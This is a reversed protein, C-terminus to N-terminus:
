AARGIEYNKAAILARTQDEFSWASSVLPVPYAESVVPEPVIMQPLDFASTDIRMANNLREIEEEMQSLKLRAKEVLTGLKEGDMQANIVAQASEQWERRAREVRVHLSSDFYHGIAKEAEERLADGALTMWADIETQAVGMAAQWKDARRETAKLPTSPLGYARAQDATLGARHVVFELEPFFQTKFAQLKRAISIPMQHGSPDLDSFTFVVMPRGDAAGEKAMTHLQSNSLEGASLYLDAGYKEAIPALVQKMSTKEAWLVLRFAQRGTFDFSFIEPELDEARPLDVELGFSIFSGPGNDPHRRIIPPDNRQDDLDDFPIYGLWRASNAAKLLWEWAPDDNIYRVGNPRILGELSTLAYHLGRLHRVTRRVKEFQEALWAGDRHNAATDIRFPDNQAALVTWSQLQGGAHVIQDRLLSM